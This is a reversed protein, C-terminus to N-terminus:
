LLYLAIRLRFPNVCSQSFGGGIGIFLRYSSSIAVAFFAVGFGAALFFLVGHAVLPLHAALFGAALFGAAFFGAAL